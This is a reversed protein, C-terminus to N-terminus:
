YDMILTTYIPHLLMCLMMHQHYISALGFVMNCIIWSNCRWAMNNWVCKQPHLCWLIITLNRNGCGNNSKNFKIENLPKQLVRFHPLPNLAKSGKIKCNFIRFWLIQATWLNLSLLSHKWGIKCGKQFCKQIM